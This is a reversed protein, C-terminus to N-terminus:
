NIVCGELFINWFKVTSIGEEEESLSIEKLLLIGIVGKKDLCLGKHVVEEDVSNDYVSV